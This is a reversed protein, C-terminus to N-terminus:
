KKRMADDLAILLQNRKIPPRRVNLYCRYNQRVQDVEANTARYMVPVVRTATGVLDLRVGDADAADVLVVDYAGTKIGEPTSESEEMVNVRHGAQQLFDQLEVDRIAAAAKSNTSWLILVHGPHEASHTRLYDVCRGVIIFKDGCAFAASSAAVLGVLMVITSIRRKM